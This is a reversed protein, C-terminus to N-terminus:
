TRSVLVHHWGTLRHNASINKRCSPKWRLQDSRFWDLHCGAEKAVWSLVCSQFSYNPDQYTALLGFITLPVVAKHTKHELFFMSLYDLGSGFHWIARALSNDTILSHSTVLSKFVIQVGADVDAVLKKPDEIVLTVEILDVLFLLRHLSNTVLLALCIISSPESWIPPRTWRLALFIMRTWCLRRGCRKILVGHNLRSFSYDLCRLVEKGSQTGQYSSPMVWGLEAQLSTLKTIEIRLTTQEVMTKFFEGM